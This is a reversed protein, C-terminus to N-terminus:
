KSGKLDSRMDTFLRKAGKLINSTLKGAKAGAEMTTAAAAGSLHMGAGFWRKAGRSSSWYRKTSDWRARRYTRGTDEARNLVRQRRKSSNFITEGREPRVNADDRTFTQGALVLERLRPLVNFVVFVNADERLGLGRIVKTLM